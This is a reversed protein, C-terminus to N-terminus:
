NINISEERKRWIKYQVDWKWILNLPIKNRKAILFRIGLFIQIYRGIRKMQYVVTNHNDLVFLNERDLSIISNNPQIGLIPISPRYWRLELASIPWDATSTIKTNSDSLFVAAHYNLLYGFTGYSPFDIKQLLSESDFKSFNFHTSGIQLATPLGPNEAMIKQFEYIAMKLQEFNCVITDDELILALTDKRIKIHDYIQKHSIACGIEGLSMKRHVLFKIM